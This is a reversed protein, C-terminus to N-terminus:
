RLVKWIIIHASTDEYENKFNAPFQQILPSLVDQQKGPEQVIYDAQTIRAMLQDTNRRRASPYPMIERDGFARHPNAMVRQNLSTNNLLWQNARWIPQDSKDVTEIAMAATARSQSVNELHGNVDNVVILGTLTPLLYRTIDWGFGQMWLGIQMVGMFLHLLLLPLVPLLLHDTSIPFVLTVVLYGILYISYAAPWSQLGLFIGAAMLGAMAWKVLPFKSLPINIRHLALRKFIGGEMRKLSFNGLTGNTTDGLAVEAKKVMSSVLVKSENISKPVKVDEATTLASDATTALTSIPTNVTADSANRLYVEWFTWPLLLGFLLAVTVLGSQFERRRAMTILLVLPLAFGLNRTLIALAMWACCWVRQWETVPAERDGYFYTVTQLALLNFVVFAMEGNPETANLLLTPSIAYLASVIGSWPRPLMVKAIFYLQGVSIVYLILNLVLYPHWHANFLEAIHKNAMVKMFGALLLPYVPPVNFTGMGWGPLQHGKGAGWSHALQVMPSDAASPVHGAMLAWLAYGVVIALAILLWEAWNTRFWEPM